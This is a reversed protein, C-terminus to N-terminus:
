RWVPDLSETMDSEHGVGAMEALDALPPVMSEALRCEAKVLQRDDEVAGGVPVIKEVEIDSEAGEEAIQSTYLPKGENTVISQDFPCQVGPEIAEDFEDQLGVM